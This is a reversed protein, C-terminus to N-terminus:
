GVNRHGFHRRWARAPHRKSLCPGSGPFLKQRLTGPTYERQMLGRAQLIPAVHDIFDEFSGPTSTFAINFGDLDAERAWQELQDAVQEPSGVVRLNHSLLKGLEGFTQDKTIGSGDIMSRVAPVTIEEPRLDGIRRQPDITSLDVGINASVHALMADISLWDDVEREKRRAEQESSGVIITVLQICVLDEADRGAAVARQRLDRTVARGDGERPTALFTGEANRAAFDRGSPSSGAQFLVPTRQPSPECLHPGQVRYRAGVHDIRHIRAPDSYIGRECDRLVADDEWSGEWLKYVVEVYEDAWAYREEGSMLRDQGFNRAANHLYSSVINWAIRGGTLHDLTSARRAFNFPHEQFVSSTYAFGLHETAQAMAPILLSPDNSPIQLATRMPTQADGGYTEYVGIVDALFLADFRGRELIQALEIWPDLSTYELQRTGPRRWMGHQIHSVANMAFANFVLPQRM